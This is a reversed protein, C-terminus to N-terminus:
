KYIIEFEPIAAQEFVITPYKVLDAVNLSNVTVLQINSLNRVMRMLIPNSEKIVVLAKRGIPLKKMWSAMLKTKPEEIPFNDVVLLKEHKVRDSLVMFLALRKLKRNIKVTFNRNARPGFTVGGGVWIPSRTSGHRARGTGKQRWPKKGGGSVEGRTKTNATAARKNALLAVVVTHIVSPKTKVEFHTASLDTTGVVEGNINYIKVNAM